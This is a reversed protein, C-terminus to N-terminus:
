HQSCSFVVLFLRTSFFLGRACACVCLVYIVFLYEKSCIVTPQTLNLTSFTFVKNVFRLEYKRGFLQNVRAGNRAHLSPSLLRSFLLMWLSKVYLDYRNLQFSLSTSLSKKKTRERNQRVSAAAAADFICWWKFPVIHSLKQTHSLSRASKNAGIILLYFSFANM